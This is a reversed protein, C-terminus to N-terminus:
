VFKHQELYITDINVINLHRQRVVCIDCCLICQSTCCFFCLRMVDQSYFIYTKPSAFPSSPHGYIITLGKRCQPILMTIIGVFFNKNSFTNIIRMANKDSRHHDRANYGFLVPFFHFLKHCIHLNCAYSRNPTSGDALPNNNNSIPFLNAHIHVIYIRHFHKIRSVSPCDLAISLTRQELTASNNIEEAFPDECRRRWTVIDMYLRSDVIQRNKNSAKELDYKNTYKNKLTRQNAECSM